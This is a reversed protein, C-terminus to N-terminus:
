MRESRDLVGVLRFVDGPRIDEPLLERPFRLDIRDDAGLLAVSENTVEFVVCVQRELVSITNM